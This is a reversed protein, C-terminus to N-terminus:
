SCVQRSPGVRKLSGRYGNTSNEKYKTKLDVFKPIDTGDRIMLNTERQEFKEPLAEEVWVGNRHVYKSYIECASSTSLISIVILQGAEVDLVLPKEPWTQSDKKTSRWEPKGGARDLSSFRVKREEPKSGSSNSAWEGGGRSHITEREIVIVKGDSLQVEEKWSQSGAGCASVGIGLILALALAKSIQLLFSNNNM